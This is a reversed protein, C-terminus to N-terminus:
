TTSAPRLWDVTQRRFLMVLIATTLVILLLTYNLLGGVSLASLLGLSLQIAACGIGLLRGIKNRRALLVSSAASAVGIVAGATFLTTLQTSAAARDFAVERERAVEAFEDLIGTLGLFGLAANVLLLAALLGLLIAAVKAPTPMRDVPAPSSGKSIDPM